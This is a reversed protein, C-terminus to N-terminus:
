GNLISHFVSCEYNLVAQCGAPVDSQTETDVQHMIRVLHCLPFGMVSARCGTMSAVPKFWDHQIAYAGAKDLPDGTAVYAAIEEDTYDRMPVETLCVDTHTVRDSLRMVSIGTYVQHTSGRLRRLMDVAEDADVPKGLIEGDLVVTTDSGIVFQEGHAKDAAVIAKAEALRCVYNEPPEGPLVSEDVDSAAISFKWGTLNLLQRRRPSNSALLLPFTSM